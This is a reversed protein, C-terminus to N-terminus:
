KSKIKNEPKPNLLCKSPLFWSVTDTNLVSLFVLYLQSWGCESWPLLTKQRDQSVACAGLPAGSDPCEQALIFLLIFIFILVTHIYLVQILIHTHTHIYIYFWLTHSSASFVLLLFISGLACGALGLAELKDRLYCVFLDLRGFWAWGNQTQSIVIKM